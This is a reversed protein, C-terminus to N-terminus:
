NIGLEIDRRRKLYSAYAAISGLDSLKNAFSAPDALIDEGHEEAWNILAIFFPLLDITKDTPSYKYKVKNDASGTKIVFGEADLLKLRSTLINSAIKEPSNKFETFTSKGEFLLDRLIVLTWKDGLIDLASSKPVNAQIVDAKM